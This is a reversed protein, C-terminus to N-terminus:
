NLDGTEKDEQSMMTVVLIVAAKLFGEARQRVGFLGLTDLPDTPSTANRLAPSRAAKGLSRTREARGLGPLGSVPHEGRPSESSPTHRRGSRSGDPPGPSQSTLVKCPWPCPAQFSPRLVSRSRGAEAGRPGIGETEAKAEGVRAPARVQEFGNHRLPRGAPRPEKLAEGRRRGPSERFRGPRLRASSSSSSASAPARARPQAPNAQTAPPAALPPPPDRTGWSRLPRRSSPFNMTVAVDVGPKWPSRRRALGPRRRPLRALWGPGAHRPRGRPRGSGRPCRPGGASEAQSDDGSQSLQRRKKKKKKRKAEPKQAGRRGCAPSPDALHASHRGARLGPPLPAGRTVARNGSTPNHHHLHSQQNGQGRTM